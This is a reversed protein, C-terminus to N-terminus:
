FIARVSDVANATAIVTGRDGEELWTHGRPIVTRGDHRVAVIVADETMPLDRLYTGDAPSARRVRYDLYRVDENVSAQLRERRRVDERQEVVGAYANTIDARHLIGRPVRPQDREVVPLATYPQGALVALADHLTADANITRVSGSAIDRVTTDGQHSGLAENVDTNTVIGTVRGAPDLVLAVADRDDAFSRAVEDLPTDPTLTITIPGMADRVRITQMVNQGEAEEDIHIGLANLRHTYISLRDVVTAVATAVVVSVMLPLMLHYDRTMEFIILISAIPARAAGGFMAAMGVAAYAGAPSIEGPFIARMAVGFTGGLLAGMMLSPRFVGSSGGSGLTAVTTLLKLGFLLAMAGVAMDGVLARDTADVGIGLADPNVLGVLGVVVGGAAPLLLPSVRRQRRAIGEVFYLARTFGIAAIAAVAGLLAYLLIEAPHQLQYAPIVLAPADGRFAVATVTGVVSGLVVVSFNRATFRRLIVELAFFVGAIPANFIAAVGAAAGSALLLRTNEESLQLVRAVTSGLSSGIQVIPGETGGSGGSGITLASAIAKAFAVRHRIRSRRTEVAIIVDPVGGGRAEPAWRMVIPAVLLGGLAPALFVVWSPLDGMLNGFLQDYIIWTTFEILELFLVAVMGTIAGVFAAVVMPGTRPSQEVLGTVRARLSRLGDTATATLRM